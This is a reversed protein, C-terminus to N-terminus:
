AVYQIVLVSVEILMLAAFLRVMGRLVAVPAYFMQRPAGLAEAIPIITVALGFLLAKGWLLAMAEVGFVMGIIHRLDTGHASWPQFGTVVFSACLLSTVVGIATLSVVSITGGIVRPVLELRMPDIGAQELAGFENRIRMLSVETAIAAGTRLAVFLATLLPVLELVLMRLTFELAYDHIGFKRAADALIHTILLSLGTVFLAYGGMIEWATFYIQRAIVERTASNYTGRFFISRTAAAAFRAVNSWARLRSEFGRASRVLYDNLSAM